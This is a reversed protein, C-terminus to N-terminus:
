RLLVNRFGAKLACDRWAAMREPPPSPRGEWSGRVGHPRFSILKLRTGATRPGLISATGALVAEVDVDGETCVVRLEELKDLRSLLDLNEKVSANDRGTLAQHVAPDWSKVDLMVGDCVALLERLPALPVTGNSDALCTLGAAGALTFLETLFEPYLTCEGGSVTLGRIFPRNPEIAAMVEEATMVTVKPSARRPCRRLCADCGTCREAAWHVQGDELSLAGAPCGSVCAGCSNCLNQTEPNHCYACSLNCGQLFISTRCGPGDVTSFPLIRNVPASASM